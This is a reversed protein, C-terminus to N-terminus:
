KAKARNLGEQAFKRVMEKTEKPANMKLAKEFLQIAETKKGTDLMVWGLDAYVLPNDPAIQEARRFLDLAKEFERRGYYQFGVNLYCKAVHNKDNSYLAHKEFCSVAKELTGQELYMNGLSGYVYPNDPATQIIQELIKVAEAYQKTFRYASALNLKFESNQPDLAIADKYQSIAEGFNGAELNVTALNRTTQALEKSSLSKAEMLAQKLAQIAKASDGTATLARGYGDYAQWRLNPSYQAKNLDKLIDEYKHRAEKPNGGGLDQLAALLRGLM